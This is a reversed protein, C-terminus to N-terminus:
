KNDWWVRTSVGKQQPTNKNMIVATEPFPVRKVIVGDGLYNVYPSILDGATYLTQDDYVQKGTYSSLAPYDLRRAETWAEGHNVMCLAVWKQMGILRIKAETTGANGWKIPSSAIFASDGAVGHLDFNAKIAAEYATKAAADTGFRLQAEAIFFDLESVTYFYVPTTATMVPYSFDGNKMNDAASQTKSGPISGEYTSSNPALKFLSSIRPDATIKLYSIIPYSAINNKTGLGEENNSWNCEFWPNRKEVANSDTYVDMKIDDSLTLTTDNVLAMIEDKNDQVNSSRMYLKLKLAKAFVIWKSLNAQLLMDSSITLQSTLLPAKPHQIKYLASDIETLLSKYIDAGEDWAPTPNAKGQLAETYPAQDMMDVLIQYTYAKLVTAVLNDAWNEEEVAQKQVVQLDALAGAYLDRYNYNFFAQQINYEAIENYQNAEVAQDWYQAFFGGFNFISEGMKASIFNEASPILLNNPVYKPYNPDENVDLYSDCSSLFCISLMFYLIKKM